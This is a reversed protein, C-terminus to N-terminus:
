QRPSLDLGEASAIATKGLVIALGIIISRTQGM